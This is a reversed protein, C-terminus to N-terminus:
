PTGRLRSYLWAKAAAWDRSVTSPSTDMAKAVEDIGLGLFFRLEVVQRHRPAREGLEDLAARLGVLDFPEETAAAHEAKELPLHLYAGQRKMSSRARAYDILIIRMLRSAFAFFHTRNEFRPIPNCDNLKLYMENVLSGPQLTHDPRQQNLHFRALRRLDALILRLLRDLAARDGRDWSVLLGTIEGDTIDQLVFTRGNRESASTVGALCPPGAAVELVFCRAVRRRLATRSWAITM